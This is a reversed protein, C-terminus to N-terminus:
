AQRAVAPAKTQPTTKRIAPGTVKAKVKRNWVRGAILAPNLTLSLGLSTAMSVYRRSSYATGAKRWHLRSYNDMGHLVRRVPGQNELQTRFTEWDPIPRGAVRARNRATLYRTVDVQFAFKHMTLSEGHRRYSVLPEPISVIPGLEAMRDFFEADEASDFRSDYGGVKEADAKRFMVTSHKLMVLEGGARLEEFAAVDPPGKADVGFKEGTPGIDWVHSAWMVVGPERDAAELQRALRHPAAVDDADMVAIWPYRAAAIGANRAASVGGHPTELVVVRGDREAFGRAIALTQDSSGDDIVILELERHTQDLISQIAVGLFAAANYAPMTVSIM